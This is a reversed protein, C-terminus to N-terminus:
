RDVTSERGSRGWQKRVGPGAEKNEASDRQLVFGRKEGGEGERGAQLICSRTLIMKATEPALGM